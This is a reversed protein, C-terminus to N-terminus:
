TSLKTFVRKTAQLNYALKSFESHRKWLGFTIKKQNGLVVIVLFEAHIENDASRVVRYRPIQLTMSKIDGELFSKSVAYSFPCNGKFLVDISGDIDSRDHEEDANALGLVKTSRTSSNENQVLNEKEKSEDSTSFNSTNNNKTKYDVSSLKFNQMWLKEFYKREETPQPPRNGATKYWLYQTELKSELIYSPPENFPQPLSLARHLKTPQVIDFDNNDFDINIEPTEFDEFWGFAAADSTQSGEGKNTSTISDFSHRRSLGSIKNVISRLKPKLTNVNISNVDFRQGNMSSTTTGM